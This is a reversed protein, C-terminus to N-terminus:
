RRALQREIEELQANVSNWRGQEAAVQATLDAEQKRMAAVDRQEAAISDRLARAEAQMAGRQEITLGAGGADTQQLQRTMTAREAERAAVQGRLDALQANLGNVRDEQVQLRAVLIQTLTSRRAAENLEARLGRVEALLDDQARAPARPAQAHLAAAAAMAAVLVAAPIMKGM